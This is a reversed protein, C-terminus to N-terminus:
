ATRRWFKVVVYPQLNNHSQGGGVSDTVESAENETSSTDLNGHEYSTASGTSATMSRIAHSHAPIENVTLTHDKEGGENGLTSFEEQEADLGVLVRGAGFAEWTGGISDAPSADTASIFISGIPWADLPSSSEGGGLEVWQFAGGSEQFVWLHDTGSQRIRVVQGPTSVRPGPLADLREINM